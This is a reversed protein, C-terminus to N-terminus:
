GMLFPMLALVMLFMLCVVGIIGDGCLYCATIVAVRSMLHFLSLFSVYPMIAM